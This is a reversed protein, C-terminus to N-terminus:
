KLGTAVYLESLHTQYGYVFKSGDASLYLRLTEVETAEPDPYPADRWHTRRGSAVDIRFIQAPVQGRNLVWVSAGDASWTLVQDGKIAGELVAPAGRDIPYKHLLQSKQDFAVVLKSDPSVAIPGLVGEPTAPEPAANGAVNQIFVRRPRGAESGVFMLRQGDNLWSAFTSRATVNGPELQRASGAGTPVLILRPFGPGGVLAWRGDPSLAIPDGKGLLVAPSGDTRRMYAGSDFGTAGEVFLLTQGDGSLFRPRSWNRWTLDREGPTKADVLNMESRHADHILLARGDRAIDAVRVSGMTRHVVREKGDVSLAHISSRLKTDDAATFWVEHGDATWALSDLPTARWNQSRSVVQGTRDLISLWVDGGGSATQELVAVLAGDPSVRLRNLATKSQDHLVKGTPYEIWSRPGDFRIAALTGDAAWDADLVHDLVERTGSGGIPVTALVDDKVIIALEGSRSVSRLGDVTLPLVTSELTDLRTSATEFQRGDWSATSIVTQGDPAFRANDIHGRRFTLQQFSPQSAAEAPHWTLAAAGATLIAVAAVAAGIMWRRRRPQPASEAVPTASTSSGTLRRLAFALDRASQFRQDPEKELCHQIVQALAPTIAAAGTSLEPPDHKLIASMTEIPSAGTFAREGSVMEYLTAGFSFIDSRHDAPQGRVQEPSMYGATGLIVNGTASPKHATLTAEDPRLPGERLKALGFDLIKVRGDGTVFVNEPKIDRHVIGKDHAAALGTAVGVAYEIATRTVLAGLGLTERLTRGQLLESVIYPADEYTGIDHVALINPHNLAAAARAELEFRRLRDADASYGSPLVKIAVDRGLRTDHARYVEGMGGSGLLSVIQYPGLLAGSALAM